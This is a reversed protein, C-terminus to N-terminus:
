QGQRSVDGRGTRIELWLLFDERNLPRLADSQGTALQKYRPVEGRQWPIAFVVGPQSKQGKITLTDLEVRVEALCCLPVNLALAMCAMMLRISRREPM